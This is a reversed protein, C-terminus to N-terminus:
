VLQEQLVAKQKLFRGCEAVVFVKAITSYYWKKWFNFHVFLSWKMYNKAIGFSYHDLEKKEFTGLIKNGCWMWCIKNKICPGFDSAKMLETILPFFLQHDFIILPRFYVTRHFDWYLDIGAKEMEKKEFQWYLFFSIDWFIGPNVWSGITTIEFFWKKRRSELFWSMIGITVM